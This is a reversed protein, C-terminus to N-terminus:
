KSVRRADTREKLRVLSMQVGQDLPDIRLVLNLFAVAEAEMDATECLGAMEVLEDKTAVNRERVESLRRKLTDYAQNKRTWAAAEAQRGALRLANALGIATERHGPEAAEAKELFRVAQEPQNRALAARGKIRALRAPEDPAVSLLSEARVSDGRDLAIQIREAMADVDELPLPALTAEAEDFEGSQRILSSLALRSWRDAPDEAVFRELEARGRGQDGLGARSLCWHEMLDLTLAPSGALAEFQSLVASRREQTGYLFILQRRIVPLDAGARLAALFTEEALRARHLRLLAQGRLALAAPVLPGSGPLRDLHALVERDKQRSFAVNARRFWDDAAPTSLGALLREARDWDQVRIAEDVQRRIAQPSPRSLVLALGILAGITAIGVLWRGVRSM